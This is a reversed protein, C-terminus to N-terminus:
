VLCQKLRNIDQYTPININHQFSLISIAKNTYLYIAAIYNNYYNNNYPLDLDNILNILIYFVIKFQQLNEIRIEQINQTNKIRNRILYLKENYDKINYDNMLNKFFGFGGSKNYISNIHYIDNIYSCYLKLLIINYTLQYRKNNDLSVKKYRIINNINENGDWNYIINMINKIRKYINNIIYKIFIERNGKNKCLLEIDQKIENNM